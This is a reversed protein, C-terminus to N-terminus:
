RDFLEKVIVYFVNWCFVYTAKTSREIGAMNLHEHSFPEDKFFNFEQYVRNEFRARADKWGHVYGAYYACIEERMWSGGNYYYGPEFWEWENWHHYSGDFTGKEVDAILRGIGNVHPLKDLTNIVIEDTLMKEGFLWLSVFEPLLDCYTVVKPFARDSIIYGLEPDYYARYYDVANKILDDPVEYGLEKIVKLTVAYMGQNVALRNSPNGRFDIVDNQGLVFEAFCEGTKQKDFNFVYDVLRNLKEKAIGCYGRRKNLLHWWLLEMAAENNKKEVSGMDPTIITGIVGNPGQTNLFESLFVENLRQDNLSVITWFTDRAYMDPSYNVNPVCLNDDLINVFVSAYFLKEYENTEDFEVFDILHNFHIQPYYRNNRKNNEFDAEVILIENEYPEAQKLTIHNGMKPEIKEFSVNAEESSFNFIYQNTSGIQFFDALKSHPKVTMYQLEYIENKVDNLEFSIEDDTNNEVVIRYFGSDIRCFKNLEFQVDELKKYNVFDYSYGYNLSVENGSLRILELDKFVSRKTFGGRNYPNRKRSVRTFRNKYPIGPFVLTNVSDHNGIYFFEDTVIGNTFKDTNFTFFEENKFSIRHSFSVNVKQICNQVLIFSIKSVGDVTNIHYRYDINLQLCESFYTGSQLQHIVFSENYAHDLTSINVVTEFSSTINRM